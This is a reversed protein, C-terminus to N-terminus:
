EIHIEQIHDKDMYTNKANKQKTENLISDKYKLSTVKM